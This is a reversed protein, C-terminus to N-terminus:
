GRRVRDAAQQLREKARWYVKRAAMVQEHQESLDLLRRRLVRGASEAPPRAARRVIEALTRVAADAIEPADVGSPQPGKAPDPVLDGLDGVVHYGAAAIEDAIERAASTVWERDAVSLGIRSTGRLGPLMGEALREKVVRVYDTWVLSDGLEVNLMRLMETQALDLSTNHPPLATDYRAPDLGVATAFRRWLLDPPAGPPPVTVVHVREAPIDRSWTGLVRSLDQYSWFLDGAEARRGERIRGVFEDFPDTRRNKIDEQWVSPIQRLLDRATCVVHVEAFSLETLVRTVDAPEAPALLESSLLIDEPSPPLQELLWQWAVATGPDTWERYRYSLLDIVARHHAASDRGPYLLGAEALSTRNRWLIEQMSTTGTKPLGIHLFLRRAPTSVLM